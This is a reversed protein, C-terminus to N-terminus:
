ADMCARIADAHADVVAGVADVLARGSPEGRVVWAERDGSDEEAELVGPVGRLAAAIERRLTSELPDECIFEMASVLIRWPWKPDGTSRDADVGHIANADDDDIDRTWEAAVKDDLPECQKTPYV